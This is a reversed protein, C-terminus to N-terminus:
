ENNINIVLYEYRNHNVGKNIRNYLITTLPIAYTHIRTYPPTPYIDTIVIRRSDYGFYCLSDFWLADMFQLAIVFYNVGYQIPLIFYYVIKNCQDLIPSSEEFSFGSTVLSTHTITKGSQNFLMNWPLCALVTNTVSRVRMWVLQNLHVVDNWLLFSSQDFDLWFDLQTIIQLPDPYHISRSFMIMIYAVFVVLWTTYVKSYFGM